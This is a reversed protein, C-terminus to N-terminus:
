YWLTWTTMYRFALPVLWAVAHYVFTPSCLPMLEIEEIDEKRSQLNDDSVAGGSSTGDYSSCQSGELGHEAAGRQTSSCPDGDEEESSCQVALCHSTDDPSATTADSFGAESLRRVGNPKLSEVLAGSGRRSSGSSEGSVERSTGTVSDSATPISTEGPRRGSHRSSVDRRSADSIFEGELGSPAISSGRGARSRRAEVTICRRFHQVCKLADSFFAEASM